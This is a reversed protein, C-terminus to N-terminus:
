ADEEGNYMCGVTCTERVVLRALEPLDPKLRQWIWVSGKDNARPIDCFRLVPQELMELEVRKGEVISSLKISEAM